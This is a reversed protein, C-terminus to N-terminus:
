SFIARRLRMKHVDQARKQRETLNSSLTKRIAPLIVKERVSVKTQHQIQPLFMPSLKPIHTLEESRTNDSFYTKKLKYVEPSLKKKNLLDRLVAKVRLLEQSQLTNANHLQRIKDECEQLTPARPPHSSSDQIRIVGTQCRKEQLGGSSPEKPPLYAGMILQYQLEKNARKLHEIEEHLKELTTKHTQQLFLIDKELSAVRTGTTDMEVGTQTTKHGHRYSPTAKHECECIFIPPNRARDLTGVRSWSPLYRLPPLNSSSSIRSAELLVDGRDFFRFVNFLKDFAYHCNLMFPKRQDEALILRQWSLPLSPLFVPLPM